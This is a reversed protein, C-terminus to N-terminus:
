EDFSDETKNHINKVRERQKKVFSESMQVYDSPIDQNKKPFYSKLIATFDRVKGTPQADAYLNMEDILEKDTIESLLSINQESAGILFAKDRLTVIHLTKNQSLSLSTIKKLFIDSDSSFNTSKKFLFVLGYLCGIVLALVLIMRFFLFGMGTSEENSDESTVEDSIVFTEESIQEQSSVSEQTFVFGMVSLCLLVAISKKLFLM